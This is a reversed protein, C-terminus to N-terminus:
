KDSRMIHGVVVTPRGFLSRVGGPAAGNLTLFLRKHILAGAPILTGAPSPPPSATFSVCGGTRKM